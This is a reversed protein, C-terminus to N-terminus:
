VVISMTRQNASCSKLLFTSIELINFYDRHDISTLDALETKGILPVCVASNGSSVPHSAVAHLLFMVARGRIPDIM